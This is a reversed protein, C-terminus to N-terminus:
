EYDYDGNIKGFYNKDGEKFIFYKINANHPAIMIEKKNQLNLSLSLPKLVAKLKEEKFRDKIYEILNESDESFNYVSYNFKNEKENYLPIKELENIIKKINGEALVEGFSITGGL